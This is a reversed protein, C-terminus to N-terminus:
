SLSMVEPLLRQLSNDPHHSFQQVGNPAYPVVVLIEPGCIKCFSRRLGKAKEITDLKSVPAM